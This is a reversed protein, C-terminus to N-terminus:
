VRTLIGVTHPRCVSWAVVSAGGAGGYDALQANEAPSPPADDFGDRHLGRLPAADSTHVLSAFLAPCCPLVDPESSAERQTCISGSM